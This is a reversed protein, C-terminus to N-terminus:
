PEGVEPVARQGDIWPHYVGAYWDRWERLEHGVVIAGVIVAAAVTLEILTTVLRDVFSTSRKVLASTHM